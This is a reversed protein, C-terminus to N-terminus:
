CLADKFPYISILEHTTYLRSAEPLVAWCNATLLSKIRFSEQGDLITVESEGTSNIQWHAKTLFQLTNQKEFDTTLKARISKEQELGQLHRLLPYVFFRFGVATSIPNGPLGFFHSNSLKAYLIPKGPRIAVKHFNIKAKLQKLLNPIFDMKGASVAGLTIIMEPPEAQNLLETLLQQLQEPDDAVCGYYSIPINMTQCLAQLYPVSSNRIKGPILPINFDDVIENGTAVIAIKPKEYVNIHSIGQAALAMVHAATVLQNQKIIMAGIAFDSGSHRLFTQQPVDTIIIKEGDGDAKLKVLEVPIVMDYGNPVSAGTMIECASGAEALVSASQEGAFVRANVTLKVPSEATAAIVDQRRVAYGDMASNTFPPLSEKAVIDAAVVHNVAQLLSIQQVTMLKKEQLLNILADAYSIM